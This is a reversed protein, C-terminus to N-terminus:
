WLISDFRFGNSRVFASDVVMLSVLVVSLTCDSSVVVAGEAGIAAGVAGDDPDSSAGLASDGVAPSSEGTAGGTAAGVAGAGVTDAGVASSAGNKAGTEEGTAEGVKGAEEGTDAGDPDTKSSSDGTTAGADKGDRRVAGGNGVVNPSSLVSGADAM